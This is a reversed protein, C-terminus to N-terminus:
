EADTGLAAWTRYPRERSRGASPFKACSTNSRAEGSLRCRRHQGVCVERATAMNAQAVVVIGLRTDVEDGDSGRDQVSLRAAGKGSLQCAMRASLWRSSHTTIGLRCLGNAEFRHTVQRNEFM